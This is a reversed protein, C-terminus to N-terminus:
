NNQWIELSWFYIKPTVLLNNTYITTERDWGMGDWGMVTEELYDSQNIVIAFQKAM